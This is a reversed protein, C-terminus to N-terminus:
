PGESCRHEDHAHSPQAGHGDLRWAGAPGLELVACAGEPADISAALTLYTIGRHDTRQPAHAHGQIVLPTRRAEELVARVESANLLEFPPGGVLRHHLAILTPAAEAHLQAQLWRLEHDPLTAERWNFHNFAYPAGDPSYCTDLLIIRWGALSFSARTMPQGVARLFGPKDLSELCHNGPIFHTPALTLALTRALTSLTELEAQPSSGTDLADGLFLVADVAKERFWQAARSAKSLGLTSARGELTDIDSAHLDTLLGVRALPTFTPGPPPTLQSDAHPTAM